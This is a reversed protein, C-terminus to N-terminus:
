TKGWCVLGRPMYVFGCAASFLSFETRPPPALSGLPRLFLLLYLVVIVVVVVVVWCYLLPVDLAPKALPDIVSLWM